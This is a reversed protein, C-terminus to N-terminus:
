EPSPAADHHHLKARVSTKFEAYNLPIEGFEGTTVRKSWKEELHAIRERMAPHTGIVELAKSVGGGGPFKEMQKKEEREMRQFFTFMGKPDIRAEVLYNWGTDDAEREFDRSFKRTLLYASNDAIVAVIGSADGIVASLVLYLGTSALINRISHRRTVHAIEHALVGAVEEPSDAALLLGSHLVVNGGPMAFANLSADEVVHFKLPYRKDAIASVLPETLQKVQADLAADKILRRSVMTQEFLKDGLKIELEVPVAAAAGKVFWSRALFLGVVCAVLGVVVAALLVVTTRKKGRVRERQSALAPTGAVIPHDLLTHDATHITTQPLSPHSLFILRDNAGGLGLKLGGLPLEVKGVESEFVVGRGTLQVIGSARGGPLGPGFAGGEFLRDHLARDNPNV